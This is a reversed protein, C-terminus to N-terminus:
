LYIENPTDDVREKERRKEQHKENEGWGEAQRRVNAAM